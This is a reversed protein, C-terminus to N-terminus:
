ANIEQTIHETFYDQIYKFFLEFENNNLDLLLQEIYENTENVESESQEAM